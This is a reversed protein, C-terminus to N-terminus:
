TIRDLYDRRGPRVIKIHIYSAGSRSDFVSTIQLDECIATVPDAQKQGQRVWSSFQSGMARVIADENHKKRLLEKLETWDEWTAGYEDGVALFEVEELKDQVFTLTAKVAKGGLPQPALEHKASVGTMHVMQGHGLPSIDLDAPKTNAGIPTKPANDFHITAM